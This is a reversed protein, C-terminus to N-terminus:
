CRGRPASPPWSGTTPRAWHASSSARSTYASGSRSRSAPSCSSPTSCCAAPNVCARGEPPLGISSRAASSASPSELPAPWAPPASESADRLGRAACSVTCLGRIWRGKPSRSRVTWGTAAAARALELLLISGPSFRGYARNYAPLWFHLVRESAMGLHAALLEDGAYLASMVGQFGSAKTVAIREVLALAWPLDLVDLTGTERRQISMWNRLAAFVDRDTTNLEFRLPAVERAVKRAKRQTQHIVASGAERREDAYADFGGSLDIYPSEEEVFQFPGFATQSALLHDFHWARLDCCRILEEARWDCDAQVVVGQLDSLRLGVPRGIGRADRQFPFFGVPEGARELVAVEVDERVAAVAATFEPSFFPSDFARDGRQVHAWQRILEADM